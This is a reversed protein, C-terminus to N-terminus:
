VDISQFLATTYQTHISPKFITDAFAKSNAIIRQADNKNNLYYLYKNKMNNSDVDVYQVTDQLLPYYWLMENSKYKFTLSNTKYNWVDFRSTNGDVVLHFKYKMQEQPPIPVSSYISKWVDNGTYKVIEDVSMQAVKTIKFDYIDSNIGEICLNIRQNLIPTKIGTTTGYFCVKDIKEDWQLPDNISSLQNGWNVMMYPDPILIPGKDLKFKSFTLINNYQFPKNLYTYSDHLEINYYGAIANTINPLIATKMYTKFLEMRPANDHFHYNFCEIDYKNNDKKYISFYPVMRNVEELRRPYLYKSNCQALHTISDNLDM